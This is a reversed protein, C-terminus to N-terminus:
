SAGGGGRAVEVADRLDEPRLPKVVYACAGLARLEQQRGDNRDSSVVIVATKALRGDARMQRVLEIGDMRPMHIDTVVVDVPKARLLELAAVGDEAEQVSGGDVGVMALVRRLIKRGVPSDDVVLFSSSM